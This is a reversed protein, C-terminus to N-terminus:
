VEAERADPDYLWIKGKGSQKARYLAQDAHRLLFDEDSNDKPYITVGISASIKVSTDGIEMPLALVDRIREATAIWEAEGKLHPLVVIFEDGGLRAVIDTTRISEQLRHAIEVLTQDGAKHGLTDNIPKFDDLDLYLVAVFTGTRRSHVIAQALRDFLLRRNPLGTLGDIFAAEELKATNIKLRVITWALSTLIFCAFVGAGIKLIIGQKDEWGDQPSVSLVWTANSVQLVREEPEVVAAKSAAIIERKGTAPNDRWLEYALGHEELNALGIKELIKNINIVTNTFGWFHSRGRVDTLFIPLRGIAGYGGQILKFPGALTLKGSEKTYRAEAVREKDKFLNHGIAGENGKLPVVQKVIGDPALQISSLGTYLPLTESAFRQFDHIIGDGQYLLAAVTYNASLNHEIVGKLKEIYNGAIHEVEARAIKIRNGESRCIVATCIVASILLVVLGVIWPCYMLSLISTEENRQKGM